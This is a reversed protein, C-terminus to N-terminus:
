FGIAQTIPQSGYGEAISILSQGVQPLLAESRVVHHQCIRWDDRLRASEFWLNLQRSSGAIFKKFENRIFQRAPTVMGLSLWFGGFRGQGILEAIM